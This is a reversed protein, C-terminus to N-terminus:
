QTPVNLFVLLAADPVLTRVQIEQHNKLIVERCIGANRVPRIRSQRAMGLIRWCKRRKGM